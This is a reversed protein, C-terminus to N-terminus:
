PQAGCDLAEALHQRLYESAPGGLHGWPVIEGECFGRAAVADLNMGHAAFAAQWREESFCEDWLDFRAGSRWATEIVDALRRDGRGLASELVSLPIKHFKLQVLGAGMAHKRQLLLRRVREFYERPRQALYGFPTHPKPVLWSVAATVAGGRGAIGKRLLSIQQSLDVIREVEAETEGPLGAMFYLKVHAFGARYAAEVAALLDADTIPKNIVRRLRESAAEVAITLGSKRVSAVLEPVLRLQEQVKLSPVSVGVHLPAFHETLRRVLEALEPYDATSLSLLGVTDFGTARYQARAIEVIRDISRLRVPRRCYSAQCFRCRGPCGRMVEVSIREHVAQVFPVIPKEPVAVADLDRVVANEFRVPLQQQQKARFAKIRPGDYEFDYLAPVYVCSFKEAAALLFAKRTLGQRQAHRFLEVLEVAIEEGEGLVFMDVFPAIPEAYNSAQGGAIVLPHEDRRLDSRIPIGALDLMNLMNTYCLENTLSFALWDFDRVAARSELTFLGIGKCRLVEEADAWPAFVREAAVGDIRNLISYLIAQGTYSMAIEYVDPFALAIRVDCTALDKRIQNVEGGIYRGPRRVFPLFRRRVAEDLIHPEKRNM